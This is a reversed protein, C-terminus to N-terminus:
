AATAEKRWPLEVARLATVHRAMHLWKVLRLLRAARLVTTSGAALFPALALGTVVLDFVHMPDRFFRWGLRRLTIALEFCFWGVAVHEVVDTTEAAGPAVMGVGFAALNAVIAVSTLREVAVDVAAGGSGGSAEWTRQTAGPRM